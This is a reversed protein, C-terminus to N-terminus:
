APLCMSQIHITLHYSKELMRTHISTLESVSRVREDLHLVYESEFAMKFSFHKIIFM